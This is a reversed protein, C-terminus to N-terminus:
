IMSITSIMRGCNATFNKISRRYSFFLKDEKFTDYKSKTINSKMIKFELLQFEILDPLNFFYKNKTFKKFYNVFKSNESIFEQLLEEGVEYSNYGICPGIAALINSTNTGMSVMKNITNMIIRNKAGRRGVHIAAIINSRYDYLLLPACDATLIGLIINPIKTILSDAQINSTDLLPDEIVLVINSHTQNITKLNSPRQDHHLCVIERNRLINENKDKSKLSCNLTGFEGSSVGGNRTFFGHKIKNQEALIKSYIPKDNRM